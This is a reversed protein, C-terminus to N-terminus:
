KETLEKSSDQLSLQPKTLEIIKEFIDILLSTVHTKILERELTTGLEGVTFPNRVVANTMCSILTDGNNNKADVDAGNEL